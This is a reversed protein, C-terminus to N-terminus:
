ENLRSKRERPVCFDSKGQFGSHVPRPGNTPPRIARKMCFSNTYTNQPTHSHSHSQRNSSSHTHQPTTQPSGGFLNMTVGAGRKDQFERWTSMRLVARSWRLLFFVFFFIFGRRGRTDHITLFVVFYSLFTAHFFFLVWREHRNWFFFVIDTTTSLNSRLSNTDM